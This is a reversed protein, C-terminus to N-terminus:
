DKIFKTRKLGNQVFYTGAELNSVDIVSISQLFTSILKGGIDFIYVPHSLDVEPLQIETHAPNPYISWSNQTQENLGAYDLEGLKIAFPNYVNQVSSFNNVQNSLNFDAQGSYHGGIYTQGAPSHTINFITTVGSGLLSSQELFTGASSLKCIFSESQTTSTMSYNLNPYNIEQEFRGAAYVTGDSGLDISRCSQEGAGAIYNVWNFNGSLDLSLFYADVGDSTISNIGTGFDFDFSGSSSTNFQGAFVVSNGISECDYGNGQPITHIWNLSGDSLLSLLFAAGNPETTNSITASPDFDVSNTFRGTAYVQGNGAVCLGNIINSVEEIYDMQSFWGYDGNALLQLIFFARNGTATAHTETGASADWDYSGGFEGSLYIEGSSSVVIQRPLIFGANAIPSNIAKTWLLNGSADLKFIFIGEEDTPTANIASGPDLDISNAFHGLGYINGNLDTDVSVLYSLQNSGWHKYWNLNGTSDYQVLFPNGDISTASDGIHSPNFSTAGEFYGGFNLRGNQDACAAYGLRPSNVTRIWGYQAFISFPTCCLLVILKSTLNKM